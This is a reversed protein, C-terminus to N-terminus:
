KTLIGIPSQYVDQKRQKCVVKSEETSRRRYARAVSAGVNQRRKEEGALLVESMGGGKFAALEM